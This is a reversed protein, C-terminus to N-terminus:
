ADWHIPPFTTVIGGILLEFTTPAWCFAESASRDFAPQLSWFRPRSAGFDLGPPELISVLARWSARKLPCRLQSPGFFTTDRLDPLWKPFILELFSAWSAGFDLGLGEFISTSFCSPKPVSKELTRVENQFPQQITKQLLFAQM